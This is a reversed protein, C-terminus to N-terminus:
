EASLRSGARRLQGHFLTPLTKSQVHQGANWRELLLLRALPEQLRHPLEHQLWGEFVRGRQNNVLRIDVVAAAQVRLARVRRGRLEEVAAAEFMVDQRAQFLEQM